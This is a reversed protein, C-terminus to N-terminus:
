VNSSLCVALHSIAEVCPPMDSNAGMTEDIGEYQTVYVQRVIDEAEDIWEEEWEKQQFYELKLGLHLVSKYILAQHHFAFIVSGNRDSVSFVSGDNFLLLQDKKFM